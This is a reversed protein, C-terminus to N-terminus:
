QWYASVIKAGAEVLGLALAHGIGRSAGTVDARAAAGGDASSAQMTVRGTMDFQDTMADIRSQLLWGDRSVPMRGTTPDM